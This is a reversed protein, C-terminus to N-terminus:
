RIVGEFPSPRAREVLHTHSLLNGVLDNLSDCPVDNYGLFTAGATSSQVYVRQHSASHTPSLYSLTLSQVTSSIRFLFSGPETLIDGAEHPSPAGFFM